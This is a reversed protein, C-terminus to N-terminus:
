NKNVYAKALDEAKKIESSSMKRIAKEKLGVTEKDNTILSSEKYGNEESILFWKLASIYDQEVGRGFYYCEGLNHMSTKENLKIASKWFKVAKKYNQEIGGKDDYYLLGMMCMAGADGKNSLIEYFKLSQKYDKKTGEGNWYCWALRNLVEQNEPHYGHAFNFWKFAEEFSQELENIGHYYSMAMHMQSELDGSVAARYFWNNAEEINRTVHWGRSYFTAVTTMSPVSGQEAFILEAEYLMKMHEEFVEVNNEMEKTKTKTIKNYKEFQAKHDISVLQPMAISLPYGRYLPMTPNKFDDYSSLVQVSAFYVKSDPRRSLASHMTDMYLRIDKLPESSHSVGVIVHCEENRYNLFSVSPNLIPDKIWRTVQYGMTKELFQEHVHTVAAEHIEHESMEIKEDSILSFPDLPKNTRADILGWGSNEATWGKLSKRIPLICPFCKFGECIALFGEMHGPVHLENNVDQFRVFFIQNGLRFSIHVPTPFSAFYLWSIQRQGQLRLYEAIETHCEVFEQSYDAIEIDQTTAKM